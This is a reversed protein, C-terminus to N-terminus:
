AEERWDYEKKSDFKVDDEHPRYWCRNFPTIVRRGDKLYGVVYLKIHSIGSSISRIATQYTNIMDLKQNTVEDGDLADSMLHVSLQIAKMRDSNDDLSLLWEKNEKCWNALELIQPRKRELEEENRKLELLRKEEIMGKLVELWEDYIEKHNEMLWTGLESMYDRVNM